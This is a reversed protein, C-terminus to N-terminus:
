DEATIWSALEEDTAAAVSLGQPINVRLPLYFPRRYKPELDYKDPDGAQHHTDKPNYGDFFLLFRGGPEKVVSPVGPGIVQEGVYNPWAPKQSQLLYRVEPHGPQGWVGATDQELIRRYQEGEQPLLTDSFALGTKYDLQEFDGDSYLMVYKGAVKIINGTEILKFGDSPSADTHFSESDFGGDETSPALLTVTDKAAPMKPSEMEQAVIGDHAPKSTLRKSYILYLVGDDEFYKGDYNAFNKEAISGVLVRDGVWFSPPTPSEADSEPHAHAIVTWQTAHDSQKRLWFTVAMHWRGDPAQYINRNIADFIESGQGHIAQAMAKDPKVTIPSSSFCGPKIPRECQLIQPTTGSLYQPLFGQQEAALHIPYPDGFYGLHDQVSVKTMPEIAPRGSAAGAQAALSTTLAFPLVALYVALGAHPLLKRRSSTFRRTFM